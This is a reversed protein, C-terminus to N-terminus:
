RGKGSTTVLDEIREFEHETLIHRQVLERPDAYPRDAVIRRAMNPTIGPLREISSTAAANLDVRRPESRERRVLSCAALLLAAALLGALLKRPAM